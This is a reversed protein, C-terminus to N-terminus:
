MNNLRTCFFFFFLTYIKKDFNYYIYYLYEYINEVISHFNYASFNHKIYKSNCYIEALYTKLRFDNLFNYLKM